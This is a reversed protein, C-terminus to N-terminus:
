RDSGEAADIKEGLEDLTRGTLRPGKPRGNVKRRATISVGDPSEVVWGAYHAEFAGVNHGWSEPATM